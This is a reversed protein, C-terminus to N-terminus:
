RESIICDLVCSRDRPAGCTGQQQQARQLALVNGWYGARLLVKPPPFFGQATHRNVRRIGSRTRDPRHRPPGLIIYLSTLDMLM